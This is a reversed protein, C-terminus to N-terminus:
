RRGAYQPFQKKYAAIWANDRTPVHTPVLTKLERQLLDFEHSAFCGSAAWASLFEGFSGAVRLLPNRFSFHYVADAVVIQPESWTLAIGSQIIRAHPEDDLSDAAVKRLTATSTAIKKADLWDLGFTVFHEGEEFSGTAARLGRALFAKVDDPLPIALKKELTTIAAASQPKLVHDFLEVGAARLAAFHGEIAACSEAISPHSTTTPKPAEHRPM